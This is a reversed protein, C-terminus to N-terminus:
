AIHTRPCICDRRSRPPWGHLPTLACLVKWEGDFRLQTGPVLQHRFAPMGNVQPPVRPPNATTHRFAKPSAAPRRGDCPLLAATSAPELGPCGSQAGDGLQTVRRNPIAVYNGLVAKVSAHLEEDDDASIRLGSIQPAPDVRRVRLTPTIVWSGNVFTKWCGDFEHPSMTRFLKVEAIIGMPRACINARDTGTASATHFLWNGGGALSSSSIFQDVGHSDAGEVKQWMAKGNVKVERIEYLGLFDPPVRSDDATVHLREPVRSPVSAEAGM